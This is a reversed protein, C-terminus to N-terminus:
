RTKEIDFVMESIAGNCKDIKMSLPIGGTTGRLNHNSGYAFVQDPPKSGDKTTRTIRVWNKHEEYKLKPFFYPAIPAFSHEVVLYIGTYTDRDGAYPLIVLAKGDKDFFAPKLTKDLLIPCDPDGWPPAVHASALATTTLLLIASWIGLKKKM